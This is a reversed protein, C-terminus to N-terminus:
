RYIAGFAGCPGSSVLALLILTTVAFPCTSIDVAFAVSGIGCNAASKGVIPYMMGVKVFVSIPIPGMQSAFQVTTNFFCSTVKMDDSPLGIRWPHLSFFSRTRGSTIKQSTDM